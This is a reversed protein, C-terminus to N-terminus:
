KKMIINRVCTEIRLLSPLWKLGCNLRLFRIAIRILKQNNLYYNEPAIYPIEDDLLCKNILSSWERAAKKASFSDEVFKIGAQGMKIALDDDNLLKVVYEVMQKETRYLYGTRNHQVVDPFGNMNKLVVPIGFSQMEVAGLGFTETRASPNIIGVKTKKYVENKEQGLKGFFHVSPLINGNSDTLYPMFQQEYNSEAIGYKGLKLKHDYLSGAGVVYLEANPSKQLITKWNKALIHFGKVPVIAGAYTVVNCKNVYSDKTGTKEVINFIFQAKRVLDDDIYRDYQQRGVMVVAKLMDCTVATKAANSMIYNHAWGIAKVKNQILSLYIKSNDEFRYIICDIKNRPCAEIAEIISTVHIEDDVKPFINYGTHFLIVEIKTYNKLAYILTAFCYETGGVGPNGKEPQSIDVCSYNLDDVFVAVRSM